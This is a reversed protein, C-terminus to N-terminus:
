PNHTFLRRRKLDSYNDFYRTSPVYLKYKTVVLYLVKTSYNSYFDRSRYGGAAGSLSIWLTKYRCDCVIVAGVGGASVSIEGCAIGSGDIPMSYFYKWMNNEDDKLWETFYKIYIFLYKGTINRYIPWSREM